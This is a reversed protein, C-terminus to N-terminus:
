CLTFFKRQQIGLAYNMKLFLQFNINKMFNLKIKLWNTNRRDGSGKELPTNNLVKGFSDIKKFKSLLHFFKIRERPIPNSYIFNCFKPEIKIIEETNKVKLLEKIDGYAAYDFFRYNRKDDPFALLIIVNM